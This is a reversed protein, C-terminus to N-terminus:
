VVPIEPLIGANVLGPRTPALVVLAILAATVLAGLIIYIALFFKRLGGGPSDRKLEEYEPFNHRSNRPHRGGAGPYKSKYSAAQGAESRCALCSLVLHVLAHFIVFAAFNINLNSSYTSMKFSDLYGLMPSPCM